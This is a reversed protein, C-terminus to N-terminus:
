VETFLSKLVQFIPPGHPVLNLVPGFRGTQPGTCDMGWGRAADPFGLLLATHGQLGEWRRQAEGLRLSLREATGAWGVVGPKRCTQRDEADLGPKVPFLGADLSLGCVSILGDPGALEVGNGPWSMPTM